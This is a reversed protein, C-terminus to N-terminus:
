KRGDEEVRFKVIKTILRVPIAKNYPIQITGKSTQFDKLDDKFLEWPLSSPYLGLHAKHAAYYVLNRNGRFAPMNYSITENANPAAKRIITRLKDLILKVEPLQADHYEDITTFKKAGYPSPRKKKTAM